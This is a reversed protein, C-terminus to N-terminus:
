CESLMFEVTFKGQDTIAALQPPLAISAAPNPLILVVWEKREIGLYFRPEFLLVASVHDWIQFYGVLDNVIREHARPLDTVDLAILYPSVPRRQGGTAKRLIPNTYSVLPILSRLLVVPNASTGIVTSTSFYSPEQDPWWSPEFLETSHAGVVEDRQELPVARVYWRGADEAYQEPLLKIAADFMASLDVPNSADAIFGVLNWELDGAQLAGAFAEVGSQVSKHLQRVDGRAVEVDVAVGDGWQAEIDPTQYTQRPVFKVKAGWNSLLAGAHVESLLSTKVREGRSIAAGVEQRHADASANGALLAFPLGVNFIESLEGLYMNKPHWGDVFPLTIFSDLTETGIKSLPKYVASLVRDRLSQNSPDLTM